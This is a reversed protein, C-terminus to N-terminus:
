QTELRLTLIDGTVDPEIGRVVYNTSRVRFADGQAIGDVDDAKVQVAPGTSELIGASLNFANDFIVTVSVSGKWIAVEGFDSFFVDLPETFAM